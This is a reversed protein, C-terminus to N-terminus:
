HHGDLDELVVDFVHDHLAAVEEAGHDILGLALALPDADAADQRCAEGGAVLGVGAHAELMCGVDAVVFWVLALHRLVDDALGVGAHAELVLALDAVVGGVPARQLLAEDAHRDRIRPQRGLEARAVVRHQALHAHVLAHVVGGAGAGRDHGGAVGPHLEDALLTAVAVHHDEVVALAVGRQVRVHRAEALDALALVHGLARHDAIDAGGAQGGARVQVIFEPDVALVAVRQRHGHRWRLRELAGGQGREPLLGRRGQRADLRHLLQEVGACGLRLRVLGGALAASGAGAGVIARMDRSKRPRIEPVLASPMSAASTSNGSPGAVAPRRRTAAWVWGQSSATRARRTAIPWPPSGCDSSSSPRSSTCTPSAKAAAARARSRWAPTAGACTAAIPECPWVRRWRGCPGAGNVRCTPSPATIASRVPM